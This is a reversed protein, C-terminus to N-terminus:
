KLTHPMYFLHTNFTSRIIRLSTKKRACKTWMTLFHIWEFKSLILPGLLNQSLQTIAASNVSLGFYRKLKVQIWSMYYLLLCHHAGRSPSSETHQSAAPPSLLLENYDWQWCFTFGSSHRSFFPLAHLLCVSTEMGVRNEFFSFLPLIGERLSRM